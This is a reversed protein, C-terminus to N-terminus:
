HSNITTPPLLSFTSLFWCRQFALDQLENAIERENDEGTVWPASCVLLFHCMKHKRSNLDWWKLGWQVEKPVSLLTPRPQAANGLLAGPETCLLLLLVHLPEAPLHETSCSSSCSHSGFSQLWNKEVHIHVTLFNELGRQYSAGLVLIRLVIIPFPVFPSEPPSFRNWKWIKRQKM